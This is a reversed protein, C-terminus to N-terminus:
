TRTLHLSISTTGTLEPFVRPASAWIYDGASVLTSVSNSVLGSEKNLFFGRDSNSNYVYIGNVETGTFVTSDNLVLISNVRKIDAGHDKKYKIRKSTNGKNFIQSLASYNAAYVSNDGADAILKVNTMGFERYTGEESDVRILTGNQIRGLWIFGDSDKKIESVASFDLKELFPYKLEVPNSTLKRTDIVDIGGGYSSVWIENQSVQGIDSVNNGSLRRGQPMNKNFCVWEGSKVDKFYLGHTAGFWLNNNTDELIAQATNDKEPTLADSFSNIQTFVLDNPDILQLGGGLTTIWLRQDSDIFINELSINKLHGPKEGEKGWFTRYNLLSDLVILGEGSIAICFNGEADEVVSRVESNTTKLFSLADVEQIINNPRDMIYIGHRRTSIWLRKKQDTYLNTIALNNLNEGSKMIQKLLESRDAFFPDDRNFEFLHNRSAFFITSSDVKTLFRYLLMDGAIEKIQRSPIHVEYVANYTGFYLYEGSVEMCYVEGISVNKGQAPVFVDFQETIINFFLLGGSTGIWITGDSDVAGTRVFNALHQSEEAVNTSYYQFDSGNFSCVGNRTGFWMLGSSDQLAFHIYNHPLGDLVTYHKVSGPSNYDIAYSTSGTVLLLIFSMVWKSLKESFSSKIVIGSVQPFNDTKRQLSLINIAM